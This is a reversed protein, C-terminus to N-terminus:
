PYLTFLHTSPLVNLVAALFDKANCCAVASPVHEKEARYSASLFRALTVYVKKDVHSSLCRGPKGATKNGVKFM